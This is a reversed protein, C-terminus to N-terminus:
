FRRERVRIQRLGPEFTSYNLESLYCVPRNFDLHSINDESHLLNAFTIQGTQVLPVM